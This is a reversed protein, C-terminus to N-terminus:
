ARLVWRQLAPGFAGSKERVGGSRRLRDCLSFVFSSAGMKPTRPRLRRKGGSAVEGVRGIVYRFFSARLVRRQLAPGFAGSEERVGGSRRLRDGLSFILSSAGM